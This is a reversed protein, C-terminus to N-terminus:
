AAAACWCFPFRNSAVVRLKIDQWGALVRTTVSRKGIKSRSSLSTAAQTTLASLMLAAAISSIVINNDKLPKKIKTMLNKPLQGM